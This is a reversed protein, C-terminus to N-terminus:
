MDFYWLDEFRRGPEKVWEHEALIRLITERKRLSLGGNMGSGLDARIPAGVWDYPFFDEVSHAANACLMADSQFMLVWKAPALNQWLWPQTLFSSVSDSNTFLVTKPLYRISIIGSELHRRLAHSSTFIGINESSTYIIIPWSPGLVTSFHLVLPILNTRPRDEIIVAVKDMFTGNFPENHHPVWKPSDEQPFPSFHNEHTNLVINSSAMFNKITSAHPIHEPFTFKVFYIMFLTVLSGLVINRSKRQDEIKGPPM